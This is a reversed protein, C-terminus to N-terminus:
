LHSDSSKKMQTLWLIGKERSLRKSGNLEGQIDRIKAIILLYSAAVVGVAGFLDLFTIMKSWELNTKFSNLAPSFDADAYINM